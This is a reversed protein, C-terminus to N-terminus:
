HAITKRGGKATSFHLFQPTKNVGNHLKCILPVNVAAKVLSFLHIVVLCNKNRLKGNIGFNKMACKGVRTRHLVLLATPAPHSKSGM